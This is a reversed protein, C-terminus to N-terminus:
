SWGPELSIIWWWKSYRQPYSEERRQVGQSPSPRDVSAMRVQYWRNITGDPRWYDVCVHAQEMGKWHPSSANGTWLTM